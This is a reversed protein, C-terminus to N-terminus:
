GMNPGCKGSSTHAPHTQTFCLSAASLFVVALILRKM